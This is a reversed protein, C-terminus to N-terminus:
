RGWGFLRSTVSTLTVYAGRHSPAALLAPDAAGTVNYGAAFRIRDGLRYGTELALQRRPGATTGPAGLVRAEAAVDFRPGVRQLTRLGSLHTRAAYFGDGDLKLANRLDLELRSTARWVGEAVLTDVREGTTALTGDNRELEVLAVGRDDDHPRWAVGVRAQSDHLGANDSGRLDSVLSIDPSLAGAAALTYTAGALSGAREQLTAAAHLSKSAYALDFGYATFGSGAGATGADGNGAAAQVYASGHLQPSISLAERVGLSTSVAGGTPTHDLAYETTVTTAVGAKREIDLTTRHTAGSGVAGTGPVGFTEQPTGDWLERLVLHTAAAIQTDISFTSEQPQTASASGGLDTIREAQVTTRGFAYQAGIRAQATTAATVAPQPSSAPEVAHRLDLGGSVTLRASLPQRVAVSLDSQAATSSADHQTDYAITLEGKHKLLQTVGLHLDTLGSATLGGFPDSFGAAASDYSAALKTSASGGSYDAHWLQGTSDLTTGPPAGGSAVHELDLAGFPTAFRLNEQLLAFNGSGSADNVYGVNLDVGHALAVAIRGGTTQSGAAGAYQYRVVIEQPRFSADYPLPVAIFRLTGSLYDLEYDVNRVLPTETAVAGTRPDIADLTVIDSGVVIDPKLQSGFVALGSAPIMVRAFAVDNRASFATAHTGGDATALDLRVGSLLETFAPSATGTTGTDASFRGFTLADRGLELRAYLRQDSLADDRETSADGYTRYPQEDPDDVFSGLAASPGSRSATDYAITTAMGPLSEGTVFLAARGRTSGGGDLQDDGDRSGPTAGAGASLLGVVFAKRLFPMVFTKAQGNADGAVFSVTADGSTTGPVVFIRAEGNEGIALDLAGAPVPAADGPQVPAFDGLLKVPGSIVTARVRSGVLAPRGWTDLARVILPVRTSGDAHLQGAFAGSLAAPKGSGFVVTRTTDGRLEDAGIATVAIENPGPVFPVGYYTYTATGNKSDVSRSGLQALTIATGNVVLEVGAGAVTSVAVTALPKTVTQAATPAILTADLNTTATYVPHSLDGGIAPPTAAPASVTVAGIAPAASRVGEAAFLSVIAALAGARRAAAAANV